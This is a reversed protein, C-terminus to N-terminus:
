LELDKIYNTDRNCVIIQQGDSFGVSAFKMAELSELIKNLMMKDVDRYFRGMLHAFTCEKQLAIEVMIRNVVDSQESKGVGSFTYPMKVETAELIRIARELDEKEILMDNTRSACSLISLKMIHTPRREFYGNFKDDEFPPNDEQATYWNIWLDLFADTVKYEGQIMHIQELDMLLKERLAIEEKSLFPVPTIKRKKQEYVFIMRSTLGGGIADLSLSTQILEPTTAGILNIWMGIIDDTGMNKTRYTWRKRCDYWDTLDSMLQRNQYGLFVTLEQSFITLSAHFETTGDPHIITDNSNKIERILSERTTAEAAMNIGLDELLDFGPGMATGKRAKGSPAILIVYLNPFFRLTGWPLSCKRQLAAALVSLATWTHFLEPPESNNTFELYSELWDDLNRTPM